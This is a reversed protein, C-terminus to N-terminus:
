GCDRYLRWRDRLGQLPGLKLFGGLGLGAKLIRSRQQIGCVIVYISHENSGRAASHQAGLFPLAGLDRAMLRLM